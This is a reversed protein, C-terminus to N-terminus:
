KIIIQDLFGQMNDGNNFVFRDVGWDKKGNGSVHVEMVQIMVDEAKQIEENYLDSPLVEM